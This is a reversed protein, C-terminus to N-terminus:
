LRALALAAGFARRVSLLLLAGALSLVGTTIALATGIAGEDGLVYQTIMAVAMPGLTMGLLTTVLMSVAALRGRLEGPSIAQIMAPWLGVYAPNLLNPVILLALAAYPSSVSFAAAMCPASVLTTFAVVLLAGDEVGRRVLGSAIAGCVISGPIGCTLVLTGIALGAEASTWGFSRQFFTPTWSLVAYGSATKLSVALLGATCLWARARFFTPLSVSVAANPGAPRAVATRPPERMTAIVLLSLLFGPAAVVLFALHWSATPGIVPLAITGLSDTVRVVQGGLVFAIGSGLSTAMGYISMALPLRTRDFSDGLLSHATPGLSAEAVGVGMRAMLLEPFGRAFGCLATMLSWLSIGSALIVRRSWRDVAVGFPFASCAYLVAFAPGQLLGVQVDSLALDRKVPAVMLSLIQRDVFNLTAALVLLGLTLWAAYRAFPVGAQQEVEAESGSGQVVGGAM